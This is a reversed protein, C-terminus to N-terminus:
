KDWVIGDKGHMAYWSFWYTFYGPVAEGTAKVTASPVFNKVSVVIVDHPLHVEAKGSKLLKKWPLVISYTGYELAYMMDKNMFRANHSSVPFILTDNSVYDAYPDQTYNREFGTKTSLVKADPFNNEIEEFSVIVSNVLALKKGLLDGAICEGAAQSWLSETKEDFMLLNSEYLRGSVGFLFTDGNLLRDYVIASGCLPCFTIAVPQAGIVDNVVEHWNLINFPYFKREGNQDLLIGFDPETLFGRAQQVTVFEPFDIAPIDNKGVGGDRISDLPMSHKSWNTKLDSHAYQAELLSDSNAQQATDVSNNQVASRSSNHCSFFFISAMLALMLYTFDNHLLKVASIHAPLRVSMLNKNPEVERQGHLTSIWRGGKM